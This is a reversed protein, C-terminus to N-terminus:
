VADLASFAVRSPEGIPHREDLIASGDDPDPEGDMMAIKQQRRRNWLEWARSPPQDYTSPGIAGCQRCSAFCCGAVSELEILRCGCFPCSALEPIDPLLGM